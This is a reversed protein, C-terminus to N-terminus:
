RPGKRTGWEQLIRSVKTEFLTELAAQTEPGEIIGLARAVAEATALGGDVHENRLRYRTKPGPPPVVHRAASLIPERRVVRRAQTWSGDPVVLTIPRTDEEVMERTLVEVTDSPFLVWTRRDPTDLASLDLPERTLGRVYCSSNPFLQLALTGTNSPKGLERRHMVLAIHTQLTVPSITDCLCNAHRLFCQQCRTPNPTPDVPLM